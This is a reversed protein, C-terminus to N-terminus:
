PGVREASASVWGSVCKSRDDENATHGSRDFLAGFFDVM